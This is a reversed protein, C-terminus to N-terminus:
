DRPTSLKHLLERYARVKPHYIIYRERMLFTELEDTIDHYPLPQASASDRNPVISQKGYIWYLYDEIETM